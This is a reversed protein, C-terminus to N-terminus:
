FKIYYNITPGHVPNIGSLNPVNFTGAGPNNNYNTGIVSFLASYTTTSYQNGNCILWGESEFANLAITGVPVLINGNQKINGNVSNINGSVNLGSNGDSILDSNAFVECTAVNYSLNYMIPDIYGTFGPYEPGSDTNITPDDSHVTIPDVYFGGTACYFNNWNAMFCISNDAQYFDGAGGGIAISAFGQNLAGAYFGMSIAGTQQNINGAGAGISIAGFGQTVQFSQGEPGYLSLDSGGISIAYESQDMFGANTGISIADYGQNYKGSNTGIAIANPGQNILGADVGISISNIENDGNENVLRNYNLYDNDMVARTITTNSIKFSM